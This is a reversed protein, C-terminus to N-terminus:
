YHVEHICIYICIIYIRAYIHIQDIYIKLYTNYDGNLKSKEIHTFTQIHIYIYQMVGHICLKIYKYVFM